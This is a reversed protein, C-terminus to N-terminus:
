RIVMQRRAIQQTTDLLTDRIYVDRQGNTDAPDYVGGSEFIVFRGDHSVDTVETDFASSNGMSDVTVREVSVCACLMLVAVSATVQRIARASVLLSADRFITIKM